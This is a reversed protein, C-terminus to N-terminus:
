NWPVEMEIPQENMDKASIRISKPRAVRLTFPTGDRGSFAALSLDRKEGADMRAITTAYLTSRGVPVIAIKIDFLSKQAQNEITVFLNSPEVRFPAPGQDGSSSSSRKSGFQSYGLVGIIVTSAILVFSRRRLPNIM